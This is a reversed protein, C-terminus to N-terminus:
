LFYSVESKNHEIVLGFQSFLSFIISYSRFLSVNLKKYCKEQLILLGDDVFLLISVPISILLNKTRKEFTHFFSIIYLASLFSLLASEQGV